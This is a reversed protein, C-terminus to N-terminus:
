AALQLALRIHELHRDGHGAYSELIADLTVLGHEPHFGTRAWADDPLSRFFAAWRSHLGRLISLSVDVPGHAADPLTAWRDQDYPKLPPTDETLILRSRIYANMHSDALPHVVQRATWGGDRYPTDLAKPSADKLAHELRFPLSEIGAILEERNLAM